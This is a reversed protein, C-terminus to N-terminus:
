KTMIKKDEDCKTLNLYKDFLNSTNENKQCKLDEDIMINKWIKNVNDDTYCKNNDIINTINTNIKYCIKDKFLDLEDNSLDNLFKKHKNSLKNFIYQKQKDNIQKNIIDNFNVNVNVNLNIHKKKIILFNIIDSLEEISLNKMINSFVLLNAENTKTKNTISDDSDTSYSPKLSNKNKIDNSDLNLKSDDIAIKNKKRLFNLLEFYKMKYKIYKKYNIEDQNTM